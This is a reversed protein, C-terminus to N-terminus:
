QGLRGTGPEGHSPAAIVVKIRAIGARSTTIIDREGGNRLWRDLDFRASSDDAAITLVGRNLGRLSTRAALAPPCLTLYAEAVGAIRGRDRRLGRSMIQFDNTLTTARDPRVRQRRVREIREAVAEALPDAAAAAGPTPATPDNNSAPSSRRAM